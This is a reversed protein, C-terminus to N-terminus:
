RAAVIRNKGSRKADYLAADARAVLRELDERPAREAIGASFTVNLRVANEHLPQAALERQIRAMVTAAEDLGADPLM